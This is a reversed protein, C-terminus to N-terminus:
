KNNQSEVMRDILEEGVYKAQADKDIGVEKKLFNPFFFLKLVAFMLFLKVLIVIWLRKSTPTLTRFGDYYFRVIRMVTNM